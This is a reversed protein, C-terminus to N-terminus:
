STKIFRWGLDECIKGWVKDHQRIRQRSRLMPIEKLLETEGMMELLKYLIYYYNLFNKRNKPKYEEYPRLVQKFYRVLKDEVMRRIYPPQRGSIYALINHASEMHRTMKLEKLIQRVTHVTATDLNPGLADRVAHVVDQTFDFNERGQFLALFEKFHAKKEYGKSPKRSQTPFDNIIYEPEEFFIGCENCMKHM